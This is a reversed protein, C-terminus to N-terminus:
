PQLWLRILLAVAGVALLGGLWLAIFWALRRWLPADGPARM